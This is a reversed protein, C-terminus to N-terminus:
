LASNAALSLSNFNICKGCSKCTSKLFISEPKAILVITGVHVIICFSEFM